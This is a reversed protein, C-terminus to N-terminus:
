NRKNKIVELSCDIDSQSIDYAIYEPVFQSTIDKKTKYVRETNMPNYLIGNRITSNCEKLWNGRKTSITHSPEYYKFNIIAGKTKANFNYDSVRKM